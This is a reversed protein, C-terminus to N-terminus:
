AEPKKLASIVDKGELVVNAGDRILENCLKKESLISSPVCLIEKGNDLAFKVTISTGSAEKAEIVLLADGLSAILRNRMPFNEKNPPETDPYESILLHTDEGSEFLDKSTEPYCTNLGSGLVSVIPIGAKLAIRESESDVGKAMGSVVALDASEPLAKIESFLKNLVDKGYSTMDRSGIISVKKPKSLIKLNGKYFFLFPPCYSHKFVDPYNDDILTVYNFHLSSLAEKAEEEDVREKGAIAKRIDEWSGHYKVCLYALIERITLM